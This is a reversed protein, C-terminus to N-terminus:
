SRRFTKFYNGRCYDVVTAGHRFFCSVVSQVFAYSSWGTDDLYVEQGCLPWTYRAPHTKFPLYLTYPMLPLFSRAREEAHKGMFVVVIGQEGKLAKQQLWEGQPALPRM